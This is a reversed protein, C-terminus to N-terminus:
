GSRVERDQEDAADAPDEYEEVWPAHAAEELWRFVARGVLEALVIAVLLVGAWLWLLSWGLNILTDHQAAFGGLVIILLGAVFLALVVLSDFAAIWVDTGREALRAEDTLRRRVIGAHVVGVAASVAVLDLGHSDPLGGKRATAALMLSPAMLVAVDVVAYAIAAAHILRRRTM